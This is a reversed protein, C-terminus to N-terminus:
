RGVRASWMDDFTDKMSQRQSPSFPRTPQDPFQLLRKVAASTPTLSSIADGVRSVGRAGYEGYEVANKLWDPMNIYRKAREAEAQATTVGFGRIDAESGVARTREHETQTEASTRAEQARLNAIEDTMKDFTKAQVATSVVKNMADGLSGLGALPNTTNHLAMNPSGVSASAGSAIGGSPTSAGGMGAMVMPNLGAAIMDARSRQYASNSMNTQWQQQGQVQAAGFERQLQAQQANFQQTQLQMQQQAQINAATNAQSTEASTESSFLSGLLSAGGTILGITLPDM